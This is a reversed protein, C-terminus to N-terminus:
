LGLEFVCGVCSAGPAAVTVTVTAAAGPLQYTAPVAGAAESYAGDITVFAADQIGVTIASATPNITRFVRFRKAFAPVAITAVGILPVAVSKYGYITRTLGGGVGARNGIGISATASSAGASTDGLTDQGAALRVNADNRANIELSTCPLSFLQGGLSLTPGSPSPTSTAEPVGAQIDFEFQQQSGNGSGFLAIGVLPGSGSAGFVSATLVIPVRGLKLHDQKGAIDSQMKILSVLAGRGALSVAPLTAPPVVRFPGGVYSQNVGDLLGPLRENM